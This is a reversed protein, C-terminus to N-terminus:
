LCLRIETNLQQGKPWRQRIAKLILLEFARTNVAWRTVKVVGNAARVQSRTPQGVTRRLREDIVPLHTPTQRGWVLRERIRRRERRRTIVQGAWFGSEFAQLALVISAVM